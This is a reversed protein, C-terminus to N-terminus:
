RQQLHQSPLTPCNATVAVTDIAYVLGSLDTIKGYTTWGSRAPISRTIENNIISSGATWGHFIPYQPGLGISVYAIGALGDEHSGYKLSLEISGIATVSCGNAAIHLKVPLVKILYSVTSEYQDVTDTALSGRTAQQKLNDISRQLFSQAKDTDGSNYAKQAQEVMVSTSTFNVKKGSESQLSSLYGKLYDFTPPLVKITISTNVISRYRQGSVTLCSLSLYTNSTIDQLVYEGSTGTQNTPNLTCSSMKNSEWGLTANGGYEVYVTKGPVTTFGGNDYEVYAVEAEDVFLRAYASPDPPSITILGINFDVNETNVVGIETSDHNVTFDTNVSYGETSNDVTLASAAVPSITTAVFLLAFLSLLKKM